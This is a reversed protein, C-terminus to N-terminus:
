IKKEYSIYYYDMEIGEEQEFDIFKNRLFKVKIIWKKNKIGM